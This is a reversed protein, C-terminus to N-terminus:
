SKHTTDVPKHVPRTKVDLLIVIFRVAIMCVMAIIASVNTSLNVYMVLVLFLLSGFVSILVYLQSPQFVTPKSGSLVDRLVGGGVASIVGILVCGALVFGAAAARESGVITYAALGLADLFQITLYLSKKHMLHKLGIAVVVALLIAAMYMGNEVIAPTKQLFVGDRITGGGVGVAIALAVVGVIDFHKRLGVAAGTVAFAFTALLDYWVPLNFEGGFMDVM